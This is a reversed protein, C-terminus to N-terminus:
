LCVAVQAIMSAFRIIAMESAAIISEISGGTEASSLM